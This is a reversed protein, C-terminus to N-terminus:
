VSQTHHECSPEHQDNEVQFGSHFPPNCLVLDFQETVAATCNTAVVKHEIQHHQLNYSC